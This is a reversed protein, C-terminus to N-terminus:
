KKQGDYKEKIKNFAIQLDIAEDSNRSIQKFLSNKPEDSNDTIEIADFLPYAKINYVYDLSSDKGLDEYVKGNSDQFQVYDREETKLIEKNQNNCGFLAVSSAVIYPLAEVLRKRSIKIQKIKKFKNVLNKM